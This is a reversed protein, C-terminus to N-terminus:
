SFTTEIFQDDIMIYDYYINTTRIWRGAGEGLQWMKDIRYGYVPDRFKMSRYSHRYIHYINKATPMELLSLCTTASTM